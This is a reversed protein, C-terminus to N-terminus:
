HRHDNHRHLQRTGNLYLDTLPDPDPIRETVTVSFNDFEFEHEGYITQHTQDDYYQTTGNSYYTINNRHNATDYLTVSDLSYLDELQNCM